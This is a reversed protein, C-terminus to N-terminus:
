VEEPDNDFDYESWPISDVAREAAALLQEALQVAKAPDLRLNAVPNAAEAVPDVWVEVWHQVDNASIVYGLRPGPVETRLDTGFLPIEAYARHKSM